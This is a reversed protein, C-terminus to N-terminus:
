KKEVIWLGRVENDGYGTAKDEPYLSRIKEVVEASIDKGSAGHCQLCMQNTEILFYGIRNNESERTIPKPKQGGKIQIKFIEIIQKEEGNAANAPNRPKDSVRRVNAGLNQAIESTIPIANLHCFEVAGATGSKQIAGLLNKGLEGKAKMAIELGVEAFPRKEVTNEKKEKLVREYIDKWRPSNFDTEHLFTIASRLKDEPYSFKPMLGYRQTWTSDQSAELKPEQIYGVMRQVYEEKKPYNSHYHAHIEPFSPATLQSSEPQHCQFCNSVLFRAEEPIEKKCSIAALLVFLLYFRIKM